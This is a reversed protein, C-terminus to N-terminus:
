RWAVRIGARALGGRTDSQVPHGPPDLIRSLLREKVHNPTGLAIAPSAALGRGNARRRVIGGLAIAGAIRRRAGALLADGGDSTPSRHLRYAGVPDPLSIVEGELAALASLYHDSVTLGGMANALGAYEAPVPLLADLTARAFANGSTPPAPYWGHRLVVSALDGSLLAMPPTQRGLRRGDGDILDLRGQVKAVGPRLRACMRALADDYLLDDGDLFLVLGGTSARWGAAMAEAQGCHELYIPRVADGYSEIIDPSEDTSGDDVVIVEARPGAQALASDIARRLFRAHQYSTIVVSSMETGVTGMSSQTSARSSGVM